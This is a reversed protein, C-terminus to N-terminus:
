NVWNWILLKYRTSFSMMLFYQTILLIQVMSRQFLNFCEVPFFHKM